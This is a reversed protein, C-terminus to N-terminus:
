RGRRMRRMEMELMLQDAKRLLEENSHTRDRTLYADLDAVALRRRTCNCLRVLSYPLARMDMLRYVSQRSMGLYTAADTPSLWAPSVRSKRESKKKMTGM